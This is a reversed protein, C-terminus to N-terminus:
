CPLEDLATIEIAGIKSWRKEVWGCWIQADDDYVADYLAKELNDKYPKSKHPMGDFAQKKKKSWSAPMPIYFVIKPIPPIFVGKSRVQYKFAFYRLVVDRKKWKDRQTMRPKGIPIILYIM